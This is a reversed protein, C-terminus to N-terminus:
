RNRRAMHVEAVIVRLREIMSWSVNELRLPEGAERGRRVQYAPAVFLLGVPVHSVAAARNVRGYSMVVVAYGGGAHLMTALNRLAAPVDGGRQSERRAEAYSLML